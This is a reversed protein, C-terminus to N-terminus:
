RHAPRPPNYHPVARPATYHPVSRPASYRPTSRPLNYRPVTRPAYYHAPSRPGTYRPTSRPANYRPTTRPANYRPVSRPATYRQPSSRPVSRYANSRPLSRPANYRPTSRSANNRPTSPVRLISGNAFRPTTRLSPVARGRERYPQMGVPGTVRPSGSRLNRSPNTRPPASSRARAGPPTPVRNLPLAQRRTGGGPSRTELQRRAVSAQNLATAYRTRAARQTPTVKTLRIRSSRYNNLRQVVRLPSSLGRFASLRRQGALTRPPLPLTGRVRGRYTTRLSRMLNPSRWNYYSYLPDFSRAGYTLWPRYGLGAYQSGYYNGFAYGGYGPQVWLSSLLAPVSCVYQPTYSWGNALWSSQSCWVPAFLLGRDALPYDWYSNVFAYGAPTWCWRPPYFVFGPRAQYWFGPSWVWDDNQYLWNGPAYLYDDGPAPVSPGSDVSAPPAEPVYPIDSEGAPAWFGSVWQWGNDAQTWYGPVWKREPPPVRWFGSVWLFDSREVDWFWYGPIWVVNDGEPKQDPPVEALPKPPERPAIPGPRPGSGSPQAYAEHIPGRTLVQPQSDAPAPRNAEPVPPPEDPAATRDFPPVGPQQAPAAPLVTLLAALFGILGRTHLATWM